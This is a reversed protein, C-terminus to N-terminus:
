VFIAAWNSLSAVILSLKRCKRSSVCTGSPLVGKSKSKHSNRQLVSYPLGVTAKTGFVMWGNQVHRVSVVSPWQALMADRPYFNL